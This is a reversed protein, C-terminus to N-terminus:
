INKPKVSKQQMNFKGKFICTQVERLEIDM